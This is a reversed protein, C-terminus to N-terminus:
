CGSEYVIQKEKRKAADIGTGQLIQILQDLKCPGSGEALRHLLCVTRRRECNRESIRLMGFAGWTAKLRRFGLKDEGLEYM